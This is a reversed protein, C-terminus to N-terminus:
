IPEASNHPEGTATTARRLIESREEPTLLFGALLMELGHALRDPGDDLGALRHLNAGAVMELIAWAMADPDGVGARRVQVATREQFRTILTNVSEKVTDDRAAALFTEVNAAKHTISQMSLQEAVKHLGELVSQDENFVWAREADDFVQTQSHGQDKLAEAILDEISAFFYSTTSLPVGARKAVARHTVAGAGIEGM